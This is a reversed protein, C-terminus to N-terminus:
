YRWYFLKFIPNVLMDSWRLCHFTVLISGLLSKIKESPLYLKNVFGKLFVFMCFTWFTIWELSYGFQYPLLTPIFSYFDYTCVCEFASKYVKGLTQSELKLSCEFLNIGDNIVLSTLQVIDGLETVQWEIYCRTVDLLIYKFKTLHSLKGNDLYRTLGLSVKM